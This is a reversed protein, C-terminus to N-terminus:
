WNMKSRMYLKGKHSGPLGWLCGNNVSADQLPIWFGVLTEPEDYLFSSDQHINVYGGIKPPKLIAMSQVVVPNKIGIEHCIEGIEKRYTIEGFIKKKEHLAHGIKNVSHLKPAILKGNEFAKEEFFYRVKDSSQLFYDQRALKRDSKTTFM